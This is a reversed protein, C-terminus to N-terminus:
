LLLMLSGSDSRLTQLKCLPDELRASLLREGADGPHNYSLDLERLGSPNSRLVSELFACGDESIMCGSLRCVSLTECCLSM